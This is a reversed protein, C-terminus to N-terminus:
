CARLQEADESALRAACARSACATVAPMWRM